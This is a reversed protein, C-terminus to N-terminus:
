LQRNQSEYLWVSIDQLFAEQTYILFQFYNCILVLPFQQVLSRFEEAFTAM